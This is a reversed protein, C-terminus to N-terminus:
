PRGGTLGGPGGMRNGLSALSQQQVLGLSQMSRADMVWRQNSSEAFKAAMMRVEQMMMAKRESMHTPLPPNESGPATAVYVM